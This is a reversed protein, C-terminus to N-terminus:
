DYNFENEFDEVTIENHMMRLSLKKLEKKKEFLGRRKGRRTDFEESMWKNPYVSRHTGCGSVKYNYGLGEQDDGSCYPLLKRGSETNIILSTFKKNQYNPHSWMKTTNDLVWGRNFAKETYDEDFTTKRKRPKMTNRTIRKNQFIERGYKNKLWQKSGVVKESSTKRNMMYQEPTISTM